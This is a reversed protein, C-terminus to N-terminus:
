AKFPVKLVGTDRQTSRNTCRHIVSQLWHRNYVLVHILQISNNAQMYTCPHIDNFWSMHWQVFDQTNTPSNHQSVPRNSKTRESLLAINQLLLAQVQGSQEALICDLCSIIIHTSSVSLSPSPPLSVQYLMQLQHGSVLKLFLTYPSPPLSEM